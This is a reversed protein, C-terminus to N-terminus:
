TPPTLETVLWGRVNSEMPDSSIIMTRIRGCNQCEFTRYDFSSPGAEIKSLLMRQQHCRPCRPREIASLESPSVAQFEPM